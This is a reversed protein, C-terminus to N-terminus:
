LAGIVYILVCSISIVVIIIGALLLPRLRVYGVIDSGGVGVLAGSLWNLFLCSKSLEILFVLKSFKQPQPRPNRKWRRNGKECTQPPRAWRTM